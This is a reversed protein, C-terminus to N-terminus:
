GLGTHVNDWVCALPRAVSETPVLAAVTVCRFFGGCTGTITGTASLRPTPGRLRLLISFCYEITTTLVVNMTQQGPLATLTPGSQERVLNHKSLIRLVVGM